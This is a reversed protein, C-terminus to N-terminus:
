ELEPLPLLRAPHSPIYSIYSSTAFDLQLSSVHHENAQRAGEEGKGACGYAKSNHSHPQTLSQGKQNYLLPQAQAYEKHIEISEELVHKNIKPYPNKQLRMGGSPYAQYCPFPPTHNDALLSCSISRIKM